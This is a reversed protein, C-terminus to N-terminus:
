LAEIEALIRDMLRGLEHEAVVRERLRLGLERRVRGPREALDVLRAALEAPRDAPFLLDDAAEGLLPEFSQNAVVTPLGSAMAELVAKDLGRSEQTSVFVDARRYVEAVERYPTRGRFEFAGDLGAQAIRAKIRDAYARQEPRPEGGVVLFRFRDLRGQEKLKAAAEILVELRKVPSLRGVSLVTLPGERDAPAGPRFRAADVGHGVVRKKATAVGLSEDVATFVLDALAVAAKLKLDVHQHTYWLLLPKGKLRCVPASVLTYVPMMHCLLFDARSMTRALARQSALLRRLRGHGKEKGLSFVRVNRPLDAPRAELAIVDLRELRAAMAAIWDLSFGLLDDDPDIKQCFWAGRM